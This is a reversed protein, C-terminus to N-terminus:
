LAFRKHPQAHAVGVTCTNAQGLMEGSALAVAIPSTEAGLVALHGRYDEQVCPETYYYYYYYSFLLVLDADICTHHM